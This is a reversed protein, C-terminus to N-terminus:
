QDTTSNLSTLKTTTHLLNLHQQSYEQHAHIHAELNVLLMSNYDVASSVIIADTKADRVTLIFPIANASSITAFEVDIAWVTYDENISHLLRLAFFYQDAPRHWTVNEQRLFVTKYAHESSNPRATTHEQSEERRAKMLPSGIQLYIGDSALVKGTFCEMPAYEQRIM